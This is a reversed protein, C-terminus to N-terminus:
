KIKEYIGKLKEEYFNKIKVECDSLPKVPILDLVEEEIGSYFISFVSNKVMESIVDKAEKEEMGFEIALEKLILFQFWFYTPGMGSILAYAELKKEDVEYTKGLFEFISFLFKKKEEEMEKSFSLPNLGKNIFALCSPITRAINKLGELQKKIKEIKIKPALSVLVTEKKLFQRLNKLCDEILPPHVALFVIDCNSFSQFNDTREFDFPINKLKEIVKDDPELVYVNKFKLKKNGFGIFFSRVIRGGGVFGISFDIFQKDM